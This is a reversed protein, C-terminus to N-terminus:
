LLPWLMAEGPELSTGLQSSRRKARSQFTVHKTVHHSYLTCPPPPERGRRMIGLEEGWLIEEALEGSKKHPLQARGCLLLEM